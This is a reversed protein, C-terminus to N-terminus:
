MLELTNIKRISQRLSFFTVLLNVVILAGVAMGLIGWAKLSFTAQRQSKLFYLFTPLIELALTVLILSVSAIMYIASGTRLREKESESLAQRAGTVGFAMTLSVLSFCLLSTTLIMLLAFVKDTGILLSSTITLVQGVVIIPALFFLFKVLIYRRPSVPASKIIWLSTAESVVGPYVFRSCLSAIVILILGMNFFSTMYRLRIAYEEWNLPLSAISFLYIVILFLIILMQHINRPDRAYAILDKAILATSERPFLATISSIFRNKRYPAAPSVGWSKKRRKVDGEQLLEWGQYYYKSFVNHLLLGSLYATLFLLAAFILTSTIHTGALINFLSENLWTSPLLIFSPANMESLFLTLNAFLEPTVFREPRFLRVTTILLVAAVIGLSLLFSKLRRINLFRAAAITLSIGINVPIMSFVVFLLTALLYYFLGADHILGVSLFLPIGFVILMWSTKMHTEFLRAMFVATRRIPSTLLVELDRSQYFANLSIVMGNIVQILFVIILILSFGKMLLVTFVEQSMSQLKTMGAGLLRTTLLMFVGGSLLYFFIKRYFSRGLRLIDNRVSWIM